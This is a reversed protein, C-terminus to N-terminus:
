KSYLNIILEIFSTASLIFAMNSIELLSKPMESNIATSTSRVNIHILTMIFVKDNNEAERNVLREDKM